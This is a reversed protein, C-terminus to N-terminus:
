SAWRLKVGEGELEFEDVELEVEESRESTERSKMKLTDIGKLCESGGYLVRSFGLQVELGSVPRKTLGRHM